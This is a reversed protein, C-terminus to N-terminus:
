AARRYPTKIAEREDTITKYKWERLQNKIEEYPNWLAEALDKHYNFEVMPQNFERLEKAEIRHLKAEDRKIDSDHKSETPLAQESIPSMGALERQENTSM